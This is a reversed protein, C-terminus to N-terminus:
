EEARRYPRRPKPVGGAAPSIHWARPRRLVGTAGIFTGLAAKITRNEDQLMGYNDPLIFGPEPEIFGFFIADSIRASWRTSCRNTATVSPKSGTFCSLCYSSWALRWWLTCHAAVHVSNRTMSTQSTEHRGCFPPTPSLLKVCSACPFTESLHTPPRRFTM